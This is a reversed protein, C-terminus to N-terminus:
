RKDLVDPATSYLEDYGAQIAKDVGYVEADDRNYAVYLLDALANSDLIKGNSWM